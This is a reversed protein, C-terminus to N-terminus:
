TGPYEAVPNRDSVVTTFTPAASVACIDGHIICPDHRHLYAIGEVVGQM